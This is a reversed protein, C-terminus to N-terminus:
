KLKDEFDNNFGSVNILKQADEPSLNIYLGLNTRGKKDKWSGRIVCCFSFIDGSIKYPKNSNLYYKKNNLAPLEIYNPKKRM